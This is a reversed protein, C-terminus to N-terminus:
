WGPATERASMTGVGYANLNMAAVGYLGLISAGGVQNNPSRYSQGSGNTRAITDVTTGPLRYPDITSWYNDSYHTLDDNYLYTVGEGTFWGKLNEGRTSEYNAVRSSAM